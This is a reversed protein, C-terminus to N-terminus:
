NRVTKKSSAKAVQYKYYGGIIGVRLASKLIKLLSIIWPALYRLEVSWYSLIAGSALGIVGIFFMCIFLRWAVGRVARWSLLPNISKKLVASPLIFLIRVSLVILMILAVLLMLGVIPNSGSKIILTPAAVNLTILATVGLIILTAGTYLWERKQWRLIETLKQIKERKLILMFWHLEFLVMGLVGMVFAGLLFPLQLIHLQTLAACAGMVVGYKMIFEHGQFNVGSVVSGV